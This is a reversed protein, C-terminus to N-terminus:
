LPDTVASCCLAGPMLLLVNSRTYKHTTEEAQTCASHTRVHQGQVCHLAASTANVGKYLMVAHLLQQQQAPQVGGKDLLIAHVLLQQAPQLVDSHSCRLAACQWTHLPCATNVTLQPTVAGNNTLRQVTACPCPHVHRDPLSICSSCTKATYSHAGRTEAPSDPQPPLTAPESGQALAWCIGPCADIPRVHLHRQPAAAASICTKCLGRAAADLQRNPGKGAHTPRIKPCTQPSVAYVAARATPLREAHMAGLLSLTAPSGLNSANAHAATCCNRLSASPSQAGARAATHHQKPVKIQMRLATNTSAHTTPCVTVALPMMPTWGHTHQPQQRPM